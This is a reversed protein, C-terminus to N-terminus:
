RRRFLAIAVAILLVVGALSLFIALPNAGGPSVLTGTPTYIPPHWWFPVLGWVPRRDYVYVNPSGRVPEV